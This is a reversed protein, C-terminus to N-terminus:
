DYSIDFSPDDINTKPVCRAHFVRNSRTVCFIQGLEIPKACGQCLTDSTVLVSGTHLERIQAKRVKLAREALASELKAQRVENEVDLTIYRLFDQIDALPVDDPIHPIVETLTLQGPKRNLLEFIYSRRLESDGEAVTKFFKTFIERDRDALSECFEIAVSLPVSSKCVLSLADDVSGVRKFIVLLEEVLMLDELREKYPFDRFAESDVKELFGVFKERWKRIGVQEESIRIYKKEREKVTSGISNKLLDVYLPLLKRGVLKQSPLCSTLFMIQTELKEQKGKIDESYNLFKLIDDIQERQNLKTTYFMSGAEPGKQEYVASFFEKADQPSRYRILMVLENIKKRQKLFNLASNMILSENDHVFTEMESPSKSGLMAYCEFLVTVVIKDRTSSEELFRVLEKLAGEKLQIQEPVSRQLRAYGRIRSLPDNGEEIRETPILYTFLSIVNELRSQPDGFSEFRDFAARFREKKLLLVGYGFTLEMAKNQNGLATATEIAVSENKSSFLNDIWKVDNLKFEVFVLEKKRAFFVSWNPIVVVNRCDGKGLNIETWAQQYLALDYVFMGESQFLYAFPYMVSFALIDNTKKFPFDIANRNFANTIRNKYVAYFHEDNQATGMPRTISAIQVAEPMEPLAVGRGNRKFYWAKGDKYRIMIGAGTSTIACVNGAEIREKKLYRYPKEDWSRVCITQLFNHDKADQVVILEGDFSGSAFSYVNKVDTNVVATEKGFNKESLAMLTGKKDTMYLLWWGSESHHAIMAKMKVLSMEEFHGPSMGDIRFRRLKDDYSTYIFDKTCCMCRIESSFEGVVVPAGFPPCLAM